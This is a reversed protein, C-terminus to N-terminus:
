GGSKGGPRGDPTNWVGYHGSYLSAAAALVTDPIDPAHLEKFVETTM